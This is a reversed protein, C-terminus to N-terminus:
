SSCCWFRVSNRIVCVQALHITEKHDPEMRSPLTVDVSGTSTTAPVPTTGAATRPKLTATVSPREQLLRRAPQTQFGLAALASSSTMWLLTVPSAAELRPKLASASRGVLASLSTALRCGLPERPVLRRGSRSTFFDALFALFCMYCKSSMYM